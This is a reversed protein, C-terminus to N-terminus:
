IKLISIQVPLMRLMFIMNKQYILHRATVGTTVIDITGGMYEAHEAPTMNTRLMNSVTHKLEKKKSM